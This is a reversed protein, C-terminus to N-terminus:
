EIPIIEFSFVTQSPKVYTADLAYGITNNGFMGSYTLVIDSYARPRDMENECSVENINYAFTTSTSNQLVRMGVSSKVDTHYSFDTASTTGENNYFSSPYIFPLGSM